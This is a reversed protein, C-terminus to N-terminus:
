QKYIKYKELVHPCVINNEIRSFIYAANTINKAMLKYCIRAILYNCYHVNYLNMSAIIDKKTMGQSVFRMYDLEISTLPELPLNQLNPIELGKKSPKENEKIIKLYKNLMKRSLLKLKYAEIILDKRCHVRFKKYLRKVRKSLTEFSINHLQASKKVTYGELLIYITEIELDTVIVKSM